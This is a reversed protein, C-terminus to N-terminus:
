TEVDTGIKADPDSPAGRYVRIGGGGGRSWLGPGGSSDRLQGGPRWRGRSRVDDPVVGHARGRWDRGGREEVPLPGGLARHSGGGARTGEGLGHARVGEIGVAPAVHASAGGGGDGADRPSRGPHEHQHRAPGQAPGHVAEAWAPARAGRTAGVAGGRPGVGAGDRVRRPVHPGKPGLTTEETAM